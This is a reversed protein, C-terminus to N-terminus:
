RGDQLPFLQAATRIATESPDISVQAVGDVTVPVGRARLRAMVVDITM